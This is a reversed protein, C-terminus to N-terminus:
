ENLDCGAYDSPNAGEDDWEAGACQRTDRNLRFRPAPCVGEGLGCVVMMTRMYNVALCHVWKPLMLRGKSCYMPVTM